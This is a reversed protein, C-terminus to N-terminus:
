CCSSDLLVEFSKQMFGLGHGPSAYTTIGADSLAYNSVIKLALRSADQMTTVATHNYMTVSM